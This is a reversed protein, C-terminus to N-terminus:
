APLGVGLVLPQLGGGAGEAVEFAPGDAQLQPAGQAALRGPHAGAGGVPLLGGDQGDREPVSGWEGDPRRRGTSAAAGGRAAEGPRDATGNWRRPWSTPSWTGRTSRAGAT